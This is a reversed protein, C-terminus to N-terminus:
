VSRMKRELARVVTKRGKNAQEYAMVQELQEADLEDLAEEVMKVNLSDYDDIPFATESAASSGEEEETSPEAAADVAQAEPEEHSAIAAAKAKGKAVGNVPTGNLSKPNVTQKPQEATAAAGEPRSSSSPANSAVHEEATTDQVSSSAKAASGEKPQGLRSLDYFMEAGLRLFPARRGTVEYLTDLVVGSCGLVRKTLGFAM